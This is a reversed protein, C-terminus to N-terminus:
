CIMYTAKLINNINFNGIEIEKPIYIKEIKGKNNEYEVYDGKDDRLIEYHSSIDMILKKHMNKIFDKKTYIKVFEKRIINYLNDMNNPHTGYCDHVPLIM